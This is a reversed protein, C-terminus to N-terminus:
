EMENLDDLRYLKGGHAILLEKTGDEKRYEFIGNIKGPGLSRQFVREYGTRKNLSGREDISFNLMDPSNNQNIQAENTSLDIGGFPGIRLNPPNPPPNPLDFLQPKQAM